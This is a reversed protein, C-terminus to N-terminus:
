EDEEDIILLAIVAGAAEAAYELNTGNAVLANYTSMGVRVFESLMEQVSDKM